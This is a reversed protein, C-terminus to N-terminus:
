GRQKGAPNSSAAEAEPGARTAGKRKRGNDNAKKREKRLHKRDGKTLDIGIKVQCYSQFPFGIDSIGARMNEYDVWYGAKARPKEVWDGAVVVTTKKTPKRLNRTCGYRAHLIPDDSRFTELGNKVIYAALDPWYGEDSLHTTNCSPCPCKETGVTKQWAKEILRSDIDGNIVAHFHVSGRKGRGLVYISKFEKGAKKYLRSLKRKFRSLDGRIESSTKSFTKPPYSFRMWYDGPKFNEELLLLCQQEARKDQWRRVKEETPKERIRKGDRKGYRGSISKQVIVIKGSPISWETRIYAGEGRRRATMRRKRSRQRKLLKRESSM